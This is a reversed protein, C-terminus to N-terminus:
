AVYVGNQFIQLRYSRMDRLPVLSIDAAQYSIEAIFM